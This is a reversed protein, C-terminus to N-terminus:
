GLTSRRDATGLRLSHTGDALLWAGLVAAAVALPTAGALAMVLACAGSRGARRACARPALPTAPPTASLQAEDGVLMGRRAAALRVEGFRAAGLTRASDGRNRDVVQRRLRRAVRAVSGPRRESRGDLSQRACVCGSPKRAGTTCAAPRSARVEDGSASPCPNVARRASCLRLRAPREGHAMQSGPSRTLVAHVWLGAGFPAVIRGESM